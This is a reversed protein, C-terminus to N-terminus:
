RGYLRGFTGRALAALEGRPLRTLDGHATVLAHIVNTVISPDGTGIARAIDRRARANRERAADRGTRRAVENGVARLHVTVQHNDPAMEHMRRAQLAAAQLAGDDMAAFRARDNRRQAALIRWFEAATTGTSDM